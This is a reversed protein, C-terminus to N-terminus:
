ENPKADVHEVIEIRQTNPDLSARTTKGPEPVISVKQETTTGDNGTRISSMLTRLRGSFPSAMGLWGIALMVSMFLGHDLAKPFDTWTRLEGNLYSLGIGACPGLVIIIMVNAFTSRIQQSLFVKM